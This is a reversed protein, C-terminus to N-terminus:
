RRGEIEVFMGYPMEDLTIQLVNLKYTTRYKEYVESVVYGLEQLLNTM